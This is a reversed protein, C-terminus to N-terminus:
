AARLRESLCPRRRSLRHQPVVEAASCALTMWTLDRRTRHTAKNLAKDGVHCVLRSCFKIKSGQKAEQDSAMGVQIRTAHLWTSCASARRLVAYSLETGARTVHTAGPEAHRCSTLWSRRLVQKNPLHILEASGPGTGTSNQNKCIDVYTWLSQTRQLCHEGLPPSSRTIVSHCPPKTRM